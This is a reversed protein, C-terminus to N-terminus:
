QSDFVFNALALMLKRDVEASTIIHRTKDSHMVHAKLHNAAAWSEFFMVQSKIDATDQDGVFLFTRLNQAQIQDRPPPEGAINIVGAWQGPYHEIVQNAVFAAESYTMLFIRSTDINPNEIIDQYVAEVDKDADGVGLEKFAKGYGDVGRHNVAIHFVGINAFFQSFMEWAPFNQMGWIPLFIVAPYKTRPRLNPPTLLYYPIKAGDFSSVWHEQRPLAKAQTFKARGGIYRLARHSIDYEWVGLPEAGVSAVAYIKSGDDSVTFGFVHGGWFLNTKDAANAPRVALYFHNMLNGIYGFGEGNQIWQGNYTQENGSTEQKLLWGNEGNALRYLHRWNSQDWSCFLLDGQGSYRLWAPPYEQNWCAGIENSAPNIERRKGGPADLTWINSHAIFVVHDKGTPTLGYVPQGTEIRNTTAGAAELRIMEGFNSGRYTFCFINSTMWAANDMRGEAFTRISRAREDFLVIRDKGDHLDSFLLFKDDPSFGIPQTIEGAHEFRREKGTHIDLFFLGRGNPTTRSFAVEKGAPDIVPARNFEGEAAIEGAIKQAFVVPPKAIHRFTAM